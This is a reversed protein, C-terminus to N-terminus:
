KAIPKLYADASRTVKPKRQVKAASTRRRPSLGLEAELSGIQEAAQRMVTWNPNVQPVRSRKARGIAGNEALDRSARDYMVRFDVLRRIAHGNAVCLTGAETMERVVVGWEDRALTVELIDTYNASWDPEPPQGSGGELQTLAM